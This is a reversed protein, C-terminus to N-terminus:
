NFVFVHFTVFVVNIHENVHSSFVQFFDWCVDAFCLLRPRSEPQVSKHQAARGLFDIENDAAALFFNSLTHAFMYWVRAAGLACHSM